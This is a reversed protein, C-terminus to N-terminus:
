AHAVKEWDIEGPSGMLVWANSHCNPCFYCLEESVWMIGGPNDLATVRRWILDCNLCKVLM